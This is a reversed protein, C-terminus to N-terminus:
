IQPVEVNHDVVLEDDTNDLTVGTFSEVATVASATGPDGNYLTSENFSDGEAVDGDSPSVTIQLTYPNEGLNSTVSVRSESLTAQVKATGTDLLEIGNFDSHTQEPNIADRLEVYGQEVIEAM